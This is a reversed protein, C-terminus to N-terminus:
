AAAALCATNNLDVVGKLYMPDHSAASALLSPYQDLSVVHSVLPELDIYRRQLMRIASPWPDREASNPASNVVTIGNMHWLDGPFNGTGHNWGFLNLRGGNRVIKSSLDLGAQSGSCDVVTDFGIERLAQPDANRANITEHAGFKAAMELRRPDIDIVTFRDLLSRSLAQVFMLGMFGCGVLALRDGAKLKCHDIGTVVCSVPEVIWHIAQRGDQPVVYLGYASRTVIQTFGLGVGTVWDGEKLQTVGAGVKIIRGVGEHGPWVPWDVGNKYVHVDWACVGCALAQIQVEGPGPDAYDVEIFDIREKAAYNITRSKGM